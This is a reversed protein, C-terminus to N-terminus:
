SPVKPRADILEVLTRPWLLKSCAFHKWESEVIWTPEGGGRVANWVGGEWESVGKDNVPSAGPPYVVCYVM